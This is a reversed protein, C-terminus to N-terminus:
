IYVTLQLCNNVGHHIFVFVYYYYFLSSLSFHLNNQSIICKPVKKYKRSCPDVMCIVQANSFEREKELFLFFIILLLKLIIYIYVCMCVYIYVTGDMLIPVSFVFNSQQSHLWSM